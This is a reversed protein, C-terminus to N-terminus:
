PREEHIVRCAGCLPRGREGYRRCRAGCRACPGIECVLDNGSITRKGPERDRNEIHAVDIESGTVQSTDPSNPSATRAIDRVHGREIGSMDASTLSAGPQDTRAPSVQQGPKHSQRRAAKGCRDSCYRADSRMHALPGGCRKCVAVGGACDCDRGSMLYGAVKARNETDYRKFWGHRELEALARFGSARSLKAQRIVTALLPTWKGDDIEGTDNGARRLLQAFLGYAAPGIRAASIARELQGRRNM